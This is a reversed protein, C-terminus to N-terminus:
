LKWKLGGIITNNQYHLPEIKSGESVSNTYAYGEEKLYNYRISLELKESLLVIFNIGTRFKIKDGSNHIVFANKENFNLMEGFTINGEIWMRKMIKGGILQDFVPKTINGQWAGTLTSTSYLNLNGMPYWTLIGGLQYQIENNLDSWSGSIGLEIRKFSKSIRLSVIQNFFATDRKIVGRQAFPPRFVDPYITSYNVHILHYAPSISFGPQILIGLNGYISHQYIQYYHSFLDTRFNNGNVIIDTRYIQKLKSINLYGYGLYWTINQSLNMRLGLHSYYKDDNLDKELYYLNNLAEGPKSENTEINNSFTPGTELYVTEVFQNNGTQLKSELSSSFGASLYYAEQSQNSFIYSYYLYEKATDDDKNFSLAKMLHHEALRFNGINYYAIGLRLRLYYYDV